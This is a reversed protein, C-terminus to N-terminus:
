LRGQEQKSVMTQVMLSMTAQQMKQNASFGRLNSLAEKMHEKDIAVKPANKFWPDKLVDKAFPREKYNVNLMNKILKKADESIEEWIEDTM